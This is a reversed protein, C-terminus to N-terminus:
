RHNARTTQQAGVCRLCDLAYVDFSEDSAAPGFRAIRTTSSQFALVQRPTTILEWDYGEKYIHAPLSAELRQALLIIIPKATKLRLTRATALIDDLNLQLRAKRTFTVM